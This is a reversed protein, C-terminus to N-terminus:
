PIVNLPNTTLVNSQNGARDVLYLSYKVTEQTSGNVLVTNPLSIKLEGSISLAMQDPTLEKVRFKYTLPIREDVIFLNYVDPNNVGIDGDQDEHHVEFYVSDTLAKINSPGYNLWEIRPTNLQEDSKSCANVLLAVFLIQTISNLKM